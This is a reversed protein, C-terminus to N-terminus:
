PSSWCCSARSAVASSLRDDLALRVDASKAAALRSVPRAFGAAAGALVAAFAAAVLIPWVRADLPQFKHWALVAGLLASVLVGTGPQHVAQHHTSNASLPGPGVLSALLTEPVIEVAHSPADKPPPQEHSVHLDAVLDQYLTGGRVVNILQMGGCIGLLPIRASLAAECLVWEFETREPQTPGCQPRRQEGYREPPIDFAGGTIIIGDCLSLYAGAVAEDGQAILLPLGGAALVADAHARKLQYRQGTQDLDLTIGIRPRRM